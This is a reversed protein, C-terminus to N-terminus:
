QNQENHACLIRIMAQQLQEILSLVKEYSKRLYPVFFTSSIPTNNNNNYIRCVVRSAESTICRWADLRGFYTACKLSGVIVYTRFDDYGDLIEKYRPLHCKQRTVPLDSMYWWDFRHKRWPNSGSVGSQITASEVGGLYTKGDKIDPLRNIVDM